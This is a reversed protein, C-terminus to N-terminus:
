SDPRSCLGNYFLQVFHTVFNCVETDDHFHQLHIVSGMLAKIITESLLEPTSSLQFVKQAESLFSSLMSILIKPQTHLEETIEPFREMDKISMRIIKTNRLFLRTIDLCFSHLQEFFQSKFFVPKNISEPTIAFHYFVEIYLLRKTKFSRFLTVENVQAADAISKTSTAKFGKDSFLDLAAALIKERTGDM